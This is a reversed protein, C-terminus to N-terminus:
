AIKAQVRGHRTFAGEKHRRGGAKPIDDDGVLWAKARFFQAYFFTFIVYSVIIGFMIQMLLKTTNKHGLSNEFSASGPALLRAPLWTGVSFNNEARVYFRPYFFTLASTPQSRM